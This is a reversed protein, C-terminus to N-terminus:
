EDEEGASRVFTRGSTTKQKNGRMVLHLLNLVITMILFGLAPFGILLLWFALPILVLLPESLTTSVGYFFITFVALYALFLKHDDKSMKKVGMLM